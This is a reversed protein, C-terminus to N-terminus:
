KPLRPNFDTYFDPAYLTSFGSSMSSPVNFPDVTGRTQWKSWQYGRFTKNQFRQFVVGDHRVAVQVRAHIGGVFKAIVTM